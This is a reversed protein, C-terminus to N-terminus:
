HRQASAQKSTEVCARLNERLTSLGGAIRQYVKAGNKLKGDLSHSMFSTMAFAMDHSQLLADIRKSNSAEQSEIFAFDIENGFESVMLGAQQPLLGAVIVRLRDVKKPGGSKYQEALTNIQAPLKLNLAEVIRECLVSAVTEAFQRAMADLSMQPPIFTGQNLPAAPPTTEPAPPTATAALADAAAQLEKAKKALAIKGQGRPVRQAKSWKSTAPPTKSGPQPKDISAALIKGEEDYGLQIQGKKGLCGCVENIRTPRDIHPKINKHNRLDVLLIPGPAKRLTELVLQYLKTNRSNPIRSM